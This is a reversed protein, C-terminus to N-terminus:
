RCTSGGPQLSLQAHAPSSTIQAMVPASVVSCPLQELNLPSVIGCQQSFLGTITSKGGPVRDFLRRIETDSNRTVRAAVSDINRRALEPVIVSSYVAVIARRCERDHHASLMHARNAYVPVQFQVVPLVPPNLHRDRVEAHALIVAIPVQHNLMRVKSAQRLYEAEVVPRKNLVAICTLTECVGAHKEDFSTVSCGFLSISSCFSGASNVNLPPHAKGLLIYKLPWSHTMGGGSVYGIRGLPQESARRKTRRYKPIDESSSNKANSYNYITKTNYM